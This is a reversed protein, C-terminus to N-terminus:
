MSIARGFLATLGLPPDPPNQFRISKAAAPNGQDNTSFLSIFGFCGVTRITKLKTKTEANPIPIHYLPAEIGIATNPARTIHHM